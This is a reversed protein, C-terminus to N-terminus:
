RGSLRYGSCRAYKEQRKGRTSCGSEGRVYESSPMQLSLQGEPFNIEGKVNGSILSKTVYARYKFFYVEIVKLVM